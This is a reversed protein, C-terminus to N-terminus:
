NLIGKCLSVVFDSVIPLRARLFADYTAVDYEFESPLPLLNSAFISDAESGFGKIYHALYQNPDADSVTNNSGAPLMCINILLNDELQEAQRKLFARPYIHHFQKKNYISLAATVDIRSGTTLDRPHKAALALIYARSRSVNSRFVSSLWEKDSPSEGFEGPNDPGVLVFDSVQSLDRSIFNEGGVKYRESFSARWFWQRIRRL